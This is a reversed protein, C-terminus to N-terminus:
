LRSLADMVVQQNANKQYAAMSLHRRWARAGECANFLGMIPRILTSLRVGAHLQEEIYPLYRLLAGKRTECSGELEAFLFPNECAVRGLMVGDVHKLHESVENATRIGGNIIIDLEPRAQKIQYVIDYNLPPIDRNQKPSLGKLWAKRAHIIFIRCGARSIHDIFLPLIEYENQDDVGIRSKVTVPINVAEQMASVCDAVLNPERMLCAGFSGSQVRESPCGVNLNIEDYGYDVAIRACEALLQPDSGGLQLAVPHEEANFNLLHSRDGHIIANATIMETYLVAKKSLLRIFYRFHKDTWDIMPALCIRRDIM